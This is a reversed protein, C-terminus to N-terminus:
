SPAKENITNQPAAETVRDMNIFNNYSVVQVIRDSFEAMVKAQKV